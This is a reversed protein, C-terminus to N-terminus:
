EVVAADLQSHLDLNFDWTLTFERHCLESDYVPM